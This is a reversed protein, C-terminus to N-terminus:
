QQCAHSVWDAILALIDEVEGIAPLVRIQTAPNQERIAELLIPLDHKLHGGQAMFLPAITIETRGQEVLMEITDGLNPQMIELFALEVSTGPLKDRLLHQVKVFPEAWQPDRAGHAFLVIANNSLPSTERGIDFLM